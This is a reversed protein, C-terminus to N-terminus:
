AGLWSNEGYLIDLLSELVPMKTWKLQCMEAQSATFQQSAAFRNYRIRELLHEPRKVFNNQSHKNIEINKALILGWFGM